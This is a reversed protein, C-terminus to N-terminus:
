DSEGSNVNKGRYNKVAILSTYPKVPLELEHAPLHTLNM